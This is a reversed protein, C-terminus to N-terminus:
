RKVELEKVWRQKRETPYKKRPEEFLSLQQEEM